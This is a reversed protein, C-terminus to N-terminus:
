RNRFYSPNFGTLKKFLRSFYYIDQFGTERAAETVSYEGSSLIDKAKNIRLWNQYRLVSQGTYQRFLTRFRSPSLQTMAALKEVTHTGTPNGRLLEIVPALKRAHPVIQLEARNSRVFVHLLQMLIGRCRLLYGAERANWHMELDGFFGSLESTNPPTVTRPLSEFAAKARTDLFQLDFSTSYFSWPAMPDSKASHAMGKPFFLMQGRSVTFNRDACRYMARGSVAFALIHHRPNVLDAIAWDRRPERHLVFGVTGVTANYLEPYQV